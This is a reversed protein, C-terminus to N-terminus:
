TRIGQQDFSHLSKSLTQYGSKCNFIAYMIDSLFSFFVLIGLRLM